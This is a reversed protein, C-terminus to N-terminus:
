VWTGGLAMVLFKNQLTSKGTGKRGGGKRGKEGRKGEGRFPGEFRASPNPPASNAGRLSPFRCKCNTNYKFTSM